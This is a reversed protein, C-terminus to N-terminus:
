LINRSIAKLCKGLIAGSVEFILNESIKAFRESVIQSPEQFNFANCVIVKLCNWSKLFSFVCLVNFNVNFNIGTSALLTSLLVSEIKM